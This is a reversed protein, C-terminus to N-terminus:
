KRKKKKKEDLVIYGIMTVVAPAVPPMLVGSYVRKAGNVGNNCGCDRVSQNITPQYVVIDLTFNM